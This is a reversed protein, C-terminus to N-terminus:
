CSPQRHQVLLNSWATFPVPFLQTLYNMVRTHRKFSMNSKIYRAPLECALTRMPSVVSLDLSQETAALSLCINARSLVATSIQLSGLCVRLDRHPIVFM